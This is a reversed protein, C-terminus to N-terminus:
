RGERLAPLTFAPKAETRQAWDHHTHCESCNSSAYGPGPAHCTQCVAIGPILIDRSETSELAKAHCGACSFGRHADHDFRAHPLWELTTNAPAVLPPMRRVTDGAARAAAQPHDGAADWRAMKVDELPTASITHCEVCTKHWLLQEAIAVQEKVWQEPSLTRRSPGSARGALERQPDQVERLEGPHSAIYTTYRKVLQAEVVEPKDHPAGEDFRKDFTLLHCGACANAFTPPAMLERGTAPRPAALRRSRIPLADDQPKYGLAAAAYKADGYEWHTGQLAAPRHCDSCALQVTPGSPGSRIPKMHLAHNLKLTGPDHPAGSSSARLALFEPHGDELTRIRPTYRTDQNSVRLDAHCQACSQSPVEALRIRGRHESHCDSCGPKAGGITAHHPPGDHCALCASDAAQARFGGAHVAHCAACKKELVAHAESLQGSSYARYDGLFFYYGAWLLALAPALISLWLRARKFPTARKFYNLDIRQAVSKTTRDRAM